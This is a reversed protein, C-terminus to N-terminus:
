LSSFQTFARHVLCVGEQLEAAARRQVAPLGAGDAGDWPLDRRAEHRGWVHYAMRRDPVRYPLSRRLMARTGVRGRAAQWTVRETPDDAQRHTGGFLHFTHM